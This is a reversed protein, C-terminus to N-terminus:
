DHGADSTLHQSSVYGNFTPVARRLLTPYRVMTHAHGLMGDGGHQAALAQAEEQIRQRQVVPPLKKRVHLLAWTLHIYPKSM